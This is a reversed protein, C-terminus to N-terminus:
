LTTFKRLWDPVNFHTKPNDAWSFMSMCEVSDALDVLGVFSEPIWCVLLDDLEGIWLDWPPNDAWDFFGDTAFETARNHNTIEYMTLLVRGTPLGNISVLKTADLLVSRKRVVEAIYKSHNWFGNEFLDIDDISPRLEDSRFRTQPSANSEHAALWTVTESVSVAFQEPNM